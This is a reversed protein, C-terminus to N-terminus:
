RPGPIEYFALGAAVHDKPMRLTPSLRRNRLVAFVQASSDHRRNDALGTEALVLEGLQQLTSGLAAPVM